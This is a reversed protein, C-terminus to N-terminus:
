LHLFQKPLLNVRIHSQFPLDPSSHLKPTGIVNPSIAYYYM